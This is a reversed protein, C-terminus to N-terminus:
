PFLALTREVIRGIGGRMPDGCPLGYTDETREISEAAATDDLGSTNLAIGIVAAAPSTMRACREHLEIAESLYPMARDAMGRMHTRTPEHCLVMADPQAGHLLAMSVGSFSPHFLSGQGEVIDWHTPDAAPCLQEVAGAVFDAAVADIAVGGGGILIGTPGTARFNVAVGRGRLERELALAAFMKGISSDTGVTLLRRGPRRQGSAIPFIESPHSVDHIKRGLRKAARAIQPMQSVREHLGSAIDLGLDLAEMMITQWESSFKGGPNSVGIVLTLAGQEVAEALTVDPIGADAVCGHLRIQGVCDERRWQAIGNATKAALQDHADGLFLAYPREIEIM